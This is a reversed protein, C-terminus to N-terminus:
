YLYYMFLPKITNFTLEHIYIHFYSQQNHSSTILIQTSVECKIGKNYLWCKFLTLSSECLSLVYVDVDFVEFDSNKQFSPPTHNLFNDRFILNPPGSRRTAWIAGTKSVSERAAYKIRRSNWEKCRLVTM